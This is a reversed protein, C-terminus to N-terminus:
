CSNNTAPPVYGLQLVLRQKWSFFKSGMWKRLVLIFEDFLQGNHSTLQVGDVSCISVKPNPIIEMKLADAEVVRKIAGLNVWRPCDPTLM